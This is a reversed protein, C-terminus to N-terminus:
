WARTGDGTRRARHGIPVFQSREERDGEIRRRMIEM